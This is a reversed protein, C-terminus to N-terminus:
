QRGVHIERALYSRSRHYARDISRRTRERERERERQKRASFIRRKERAMKRLREVEPGVRRISLLIEEKLREDLGSSFSQFERTAVLAVFLRSVFRALTWPPILALLRRRGTAAMACSTPIVRIVSSEDNRASGASPVRARHVALAPLVLGAHGRSMEQM